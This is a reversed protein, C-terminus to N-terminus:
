KKNRKTLTLYLGNKPRLVLEAMMPIDEMRLNSQLNFNRLIMSIVTKEEMMAFRSLLCIIILKRLWNLKSRVSATGQALPSHYM